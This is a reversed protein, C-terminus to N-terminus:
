THYKILSQLEQQDMFVRLTAIFHSDIIVIDMFVNRYQGFSSIWVKFVTWFDFM